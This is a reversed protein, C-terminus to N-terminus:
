YRNRAFFGRLDAVRLQIPRPGSGPPGERDQQRSSCDVERVRLCRRKGEHYAFGDPCRYLSPGVAGSDDSTLLLLLFFSSPQSLYLVGEM